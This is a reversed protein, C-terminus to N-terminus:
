KLALKSLIKCLYYNKSVIYKFVIYKTKSFSNIIYKKYKNTWFKEKELVKKAEIYLDKRNNYAAVIMMIFNYYLYGYKIFEIWEDEYNNNKVYELKAKLRSITKKYWDVNNFNSSLSSHGVRYNYLEDDITSISKAKILILNYCGEGFSRLLYEFNNEELLERKVIKNWQIASKSLFKWDKKGEYSKYWKTKNIVEKPYFKYNCIVVDNSNNIAKEYMTKFMDKDIFDDADVWGIYEGTAAKYGSIRAEIVGKNEQNIVKLYDCGNKYENLINISNDTSGDNVCIIEINKLSQNIVSDLCEKLYKEANYIPIIVSVKYMTEGGQKIINM